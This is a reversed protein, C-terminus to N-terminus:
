RGHRVAEHDSAETRRATTSRATLASIVLGHTVGERPPTFRRRSPRERPAALRARQGARHPATAAKRDAAQREREAKHEHAAIRASIADHLAALDAWATDTNGDRADLAQAALTIAAELDALQRHPCARHRTPPHPTARHPAPRRRPRHTRRRGRTPHRRHPRRHPRHRALRRPRRRRHPRRRCAPRHTRRPGLWPQATTPNLNRQAGILAIAIAQPWADAACTHGAGALALSVVRWVEDAVSPGPRSRLHLGGTPM